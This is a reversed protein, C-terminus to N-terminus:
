DRFRLANALELMYSSGEKLDTQAETLKRQTENFKRELDQLNSGKLTTITQLIQEQKQLFLTRKDTIQLYWRELIEQKALPVEGRTKEILERSESMRATYTELNIRLRAANLALITQRIITQMVTYRDELQKNAKTADSLTSVSNVFQSHTELFENESAILRTYLDREQAQLSTSERIRENLLLLYTKLLISRQSLMAKTKEVAATESTLSKFKLYENKAIQFENYLTRYQDFQFVYDRYAQESSARVTSVPLVFISVIFIVAVIRNCTM